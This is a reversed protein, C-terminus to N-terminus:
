GEVNVELVEEGKGILCEGIRNGVVIVAVEREEDASEVVEDGFIFRAVEAFM